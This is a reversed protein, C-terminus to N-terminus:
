TEQEMAGREGLEDHGGSGDIVTGRELSDVVLDLGRVSWRGSLKEIILREHVLANGKSTVVLLPGEALNIQDEEGREGDVIVEGTRRM